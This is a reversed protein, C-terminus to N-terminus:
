RIFSCYKGVVCSDRLMQGSSPRKVTVRIKVDRANNASQRHEDASPNPSYTVLTLAARTGSNSEQCRAWKRDPTNADSTTTSTLQM